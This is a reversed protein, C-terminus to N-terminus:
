EIVKMLQGNEVFTRGWSQVRPSRQVGERVWRVGDCWVDVDDADVQTWCLHDETVWLDQMLGVQVTQLSGETVDWQQVGETDIWYLGQKSSYLQTPLTAPITVTTDSGVTWMQISPQTGWEIWAVAEDLWVPAQGQVPNATRERIIGTELDLVHVSDTTVWLVHSNQIRVSGDIIDDLVRRQPTHWDAHTWDWVGGTRGVAFLADGIAWSTAPLTVVHNLETDWLQNPLGSRDCGLVRHELVLPFGLVVCPHPLKQVPVATVVESYGIQELLLCWVWIM